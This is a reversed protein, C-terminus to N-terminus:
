VISKEEEDIMALRRHVEYAVAEKRILSYESLLSFFLTAARFVEEETLHLHFQQEIEQLAAERRSQSWFREPEESIKQVGSDPPFSM